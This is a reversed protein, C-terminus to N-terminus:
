RTSCRLARTWRLGGPSLGRGAGLVAGACAHREGRFNRIAPPRFAQRRSELRRPRGRLLTLPGCCLLYAQPALAGIEADFDIREGHLSSFTTLRDGLADRLPQLYVLEQPSRAAYRMTVDAQKAALTLAM